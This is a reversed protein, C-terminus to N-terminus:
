DKIGSARWQGKWDRHFAQGVVCLDPHSASRPTARLDSQSGWSEDDRTPEDDLRYSHISFTDM